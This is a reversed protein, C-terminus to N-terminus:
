TRIGETKLVRGQAQMGRWCVDWNEVNPEALSKTLINAHVTEVERKQNVGSNEGTQSFGGGSCQIFGTLNKLLRWIEVNCM